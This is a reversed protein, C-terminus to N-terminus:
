QAQTTINQKLNQGSRLELPVGQMLYRRLTAPDKWNVNWGHNIAILIYQGPIINQLDFSGDTNTQDLVVTAFSGPDDLGAPVLLVMAGISPKGDFTTMGTVTAHGSATHLTLTVDGGHFTVFRGAVEAGQASIGTLYTDGRGGSNIEYRGPPVQFGTESPQRAQPGRRMAVPTPRGGGFPFFRQGTEADVLELGFLRDEVEENDFHVSVNALSSSVANLDVVRTSGDSIEIMATKPEASQQAVRVRYPGPALGGIDIQGQPGNTIAAQAFGLGAIGTDMRELVPFAPVVRGSAQDTQAPTLIRLHVAPIPVLHFDARRVDGAHLDLTEAETSNGVGPYWTLQYTVDLSPDPLPAASNTASNFRRPQATSAYWPKAEVLVRYRGPALNSFEYVGRDDTQVFTQIRFPDAKRGPNSLQEILLGVRANRVAEGAEDLVAGTISGEPSIEFRLDITPAAPTLVIASSYNQHEDYAQSVYGPAAATLHWAGASPLPISFHGHEDADFGDVAPFQRGPGRGRQEALL